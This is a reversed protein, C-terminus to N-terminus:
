SHENKEGKTSIIKGVNADYCEASVFVRCKWVFPSLPANDDQIQQEGGISHCYSIILLLM